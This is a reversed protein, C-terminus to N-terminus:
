LSRMPLESQDDTTPDVYQIVVELEGTTPKTTWDFYARIRNGTHAQSTTGSSAYTTDDDAVAQGATGGFLQGRTPNTSAEAESGGIRLLTTGNFGENVRVTTQTVISNFPIDFLVVGDNDNGLDSFRVTRHAALSVVGLSSKVGIPSRLDIDAM